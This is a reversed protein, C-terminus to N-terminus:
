YSRISCRNKLKGDKIIVNTEIENMSVIMNQRVFSVGTVIDTRLDLIGKKKILDINKIRISGIQGIYFNVSDTWLSGAGINLELLNKSNRIRVTCSTGPGTNGTLEVVETNKPNQSLKFTKRLTKMAEEETVYDAFSLSSFMLIALILLFKM